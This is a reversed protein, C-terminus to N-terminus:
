LAMIVSKINENSVQALATDKDNQTLDNLSKIIEVAKLVLTQNKSLLLPRVIDANKILELAPYVFESDENIEPQIFNDLDEDLNNNLLEKVANVEDKTNKDEDFLYEDNETLQNFKNKATLLIIANKANPESFILNEFVEYLQFSFINSLPVIEGLGQLINNVALLANEHNQTNLLELFSEMYGIECAIYESVSSKKMASFINELADKEGYASLFKVASLVEFDDDSNLKKYAEDICARDNLFSLAIASNYSLAENESYAYKKLYEAANENKVYSFYKAAYSKEEETGNELLNFFSNKTENDGFNAFVEAIFDDYSPSYYKLFKFLNKFNDKNCANKLRKAVNQKVFDFLFDEKSVLEEFAKEDANNIIHAAAHEYENKNKGTLQKILDM